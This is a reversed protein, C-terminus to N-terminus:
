ARRSCPRADDGTADACRSSDAHHAARAREGVFHHVLERAGADALRGTDPDATVRDVARAEDVHELRELVIRLRLGDRHHTLDAARVLLLGRAENVITHLLGHDSEDRPLRRGGSTAHSVRARDDGPEAPVAASFSSANSFAPIPIARRGFSKTSSSRSWAILSVSSNRASRTTIGSSCRANDSPIQASTSRSATVPTSRRARLGERAFRRPVRRLDRRASRGRTCRASDCRFREPARRRWRRPAPVSRARRRHHRHARDTPVASRRAERAAACPRGSDGPARRRRACATAGRPPRDVNEFRTRALVDEPQVHQVVHLERRLESHALDHGLRRSGRSRVRQQAIGRAIEHAGTDARQGTISASPRSTPISLSRSSIRCM